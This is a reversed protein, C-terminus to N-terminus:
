GRGGESLRGLIATGIREGIREGVERGLREIQESTALELQGELRSIREGQEALKEACESRENEWAAKYDDRQKELFENRERIIKRNGFVAVAGGVLLLPAVVALVDLITEM